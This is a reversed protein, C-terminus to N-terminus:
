MLDWAAVVKAQSGAFVRKGDSLVKFVRTQESRKEKGLLEAFDVKKKIEWKGEKEGKDMGGVRGWIVVTEDYSGSIIMEEGGVLVTCLSRVLDTHGELCAELAGTRLDWIKITNDSSGSVFKGDGLWAVCAVGKTHSVTGRVCTGNGTEFIRISRDGSTTIVLREDRSILVANIAASHQTLAFLERKHWDYQVTSGPQPTLDKIDWVTCIKDKNGAVLFKSSVALSLVSEAPTQREITSVRQGTSLRWVIVLGDVGGTFILDLPESIAVCLASGTHGLLPPYALQQTALSWVRVSEDRSATVLHTATLGLHYICEKHAQEHQADPPFFTLTPTSPVESM